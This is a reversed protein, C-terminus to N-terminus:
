DPAIYRAGCWRQISCEGKAVDKTETMQVKPGRSWVVRCKKVPAPLNDLKEVVVLAFHNINSTSCTRATVLAPCEGQITIRYKFGKRGGAARSIGKTIKGFMEIRHENVVAAMPQSAWELQSGAPVVLGPAQQLACCVLHKM